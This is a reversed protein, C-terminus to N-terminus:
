GETDFVKTPCGEGHEGKGCPHGEFCSPCFQGDADRDCFFYVKTQENCSSCRKM